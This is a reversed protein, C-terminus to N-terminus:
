KQKSDKIIQDCCEIKYVAPSSIKRNFHNEWCVLITFIIRNITVIHYTGTLIIKINYIIVNANKIHNKYWTIQYFSKSSYKHKDGM